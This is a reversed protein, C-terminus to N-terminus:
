SRIELRCLPDRIEFHIPGISIGLQQTRDTFCIGQQSRNILHVKPTGTSADEKRGERKQHLLQDDEWRAGIEKELQPIQKGDLFMTMTARTCGLVDLPMVSRNDSLRM